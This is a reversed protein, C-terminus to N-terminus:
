FVNAGELPGEINNSETIKYTATTSDGDLDGKATAEFATASAVSVEYQYYVQGTPRFGIDSFGGKDEWAVPTRGPVSEPSATTAKYTEHEAHYAEECSRIAGLNSKAESTKAKMRFNLFNPIAIASLIGIIAVVIMLEIMTFGKQNNM